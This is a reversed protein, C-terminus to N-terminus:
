PCPIVDCGIQSDQIQFASVRELLVNCAVDASLRNALICGATGAGCIIFDYKTMISSLKKPPSQGLPKGHKLTNTISSNVGLPSKYIDHSPLITTAACM